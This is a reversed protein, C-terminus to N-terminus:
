NLILKKPKPGKKLIWDYVSQMKIGISQDSFDKSVWKRGRKGMLLRTKDSLNMANKLTKIIKKEKLDICWGCNNKKLDYWPTNRTTIVPVCFSLAEAIVLGFNESHSLLIFLDSSLFLDNKDKGMVDKKWKVRKLKLDNSLKIMKNKYGKEDYGCIVLEWDSYKSHLHKWANLLEIIGKKEHIRSLFLLRKKKKFKLKNIFKIKPITIANPVNIIKNKFGLKKFTKVEMLSTARLCVANKLHYKEIFFFYILKKFYSQKLAWKELMGRPTIIYPTPILKNYILNFISASSWIGQIDILNPRVLFMKKFYLLNFPFIKLFGAQFINIKDSMIYNLKFKNSQWFGFLYAEKKKLNDLKERLLFSSESYGGAENSLNSGLYLIKM